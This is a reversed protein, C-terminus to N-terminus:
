QTAAATNKRFGATGTRRFTSCSNVGQRSIDEFWVFPM